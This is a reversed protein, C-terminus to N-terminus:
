YEVNGIYNKKRNESLMFNQDYYNAYNPVNRIKEGQLLLQQQQQSHHQPNPQIQYQNLKELPNQNKSSKMRQARTQTATSKVKIIVVQRITSHNPFKQVFLKQSLARKGCVALGIDNNQHMIVKIKLM